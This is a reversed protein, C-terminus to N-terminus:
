VVSKRDADFGDANDTKIGVQYGWTAPAFAFTVVRQGTATVEHNAQWSEGAGANYQTTTAYTEQIWSAGNVYATLTAYADNVVKTINFTIKAQTATALESVPIDSNSIIALDVDAAYATFSTVATTTFLMLVMSLATFFSIFRKKM